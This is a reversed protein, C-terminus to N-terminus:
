EPLRGAPRSREDPPTMLPVGVVSSVALKVTWTSSESEGVDVSVCASEIVTSGSGDPPGVIVVVLRGSPVLCSGYLANTCAVPPVSGYVHDITDPLRGLPSEKFEVVPSILPVGLFAPQFYKM